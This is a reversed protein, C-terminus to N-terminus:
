GVMFYGADAPQQAAGLTLTRSRTDLRLLFFRDSAEDLILAVDHLLEYKERETLHVEHVSKQGGTAYGRVLHLVAALRRHECIDYSALYLSREPM